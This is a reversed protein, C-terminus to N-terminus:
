AVTCTGLGETGKTMQQLPLFPMQGGQFQCPGCTHGAWQLATLCGAPGPVKSDGAGYSWGRMEENKLTSNVQRTKGTM